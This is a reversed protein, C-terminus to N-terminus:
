IYETKNDGLLSALKQCAAEMVLLNKSQSSINTQIDTSKKTSM